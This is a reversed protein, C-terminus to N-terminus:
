HEFRKGTGAATVTAPRHRRGSLASFVCPQRESALRAAGSGGLVACVLRTPAGPSHECVRTSLRRETLWQTGGIDPRPPSYVQAVKVDVAVKCMLPLKSMSSWKPLKVMM